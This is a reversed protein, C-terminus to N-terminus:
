QRVVRYFKKSAANVSVSYPSVPNGPVATWSAMDTSELLTGGGTWTIKVQGGVVVTTSFKPAPLPAYAKLYASSIATLNTSATPDGQMKWAVKVYDGGGGETQLASIYYSVGATLPIAASVTPNGPEQFGHCCGAEEAIQVAAQPTADVSLYLRSADDSAIFFYYNTTVTPTIWGSLNCGYNDGLAGFYANNNLDGGTIQTSDFVTTNLNTYPANPYIPNGLLGDVGGSIATYFDWEMVGQTLVPAWGFAPTTDSSNPTQSQDLVGTVTVSYKQGAAFGPTGLYATMNDASMTISSPTVGGSFVYNGLIGATVPDVRKTFQV